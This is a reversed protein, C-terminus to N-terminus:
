IYKKKEHNGPNRKELVLYSKVLYSKLPNLYIIKINYKKSNNSWKKKLKLKFKVNRNFRHLNKTKNENVNLFCNIKKNNFFLQIFVISYYM